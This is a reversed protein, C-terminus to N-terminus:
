FIPCAAGFFFLFNQLDQLNVVGDQNTDGQLVTGVQGFNFLLIQLDELNAQGDRNFDVPCHDPAVFDISAIKDSLVGRSIAVGTIPNVTGLHRNGTGAELFVGWMKRTEPDVSLALTEEITVNPMSISRSSTTAGTTKDVTRLNTDERALTYLVNDLLAIGEATHDTQGIAQVLGNRQVRYLFRDADGLIFTDTVDDYTGGVPPESFFPDNGHLGDWLISAVAGGVDIKEMIADTNEAGSGSWHYLGRDYTSYAIQEGDTGAGLARIAFMLADGPNIGYLAEPDAADDATVGVLFSDPPPAFSGSVVPEAISGTQTAVGTTPDITFLYTTGDAGKLFGYMKSTSPDAGIYLGNEITVGAMTIPTATLTAGTNPDITRLTAGTNGVGHANVNDITYYVGDYLALASADHDLLGITTVAGNPSVSYLCRSIDSVLFANSTLDFLAGVPRASPGGGGHLGDWPVNQISANVLDITEMIADGIDDGSGSWHYMLQLYPNFAIVEGDTGHGLPAFLQSVGTIINIRFLTEADLGDDGTVAYFPATETGGGAFACPALMVVALAAFRVPFPSTPRM